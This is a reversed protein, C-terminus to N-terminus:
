FNDCPEFGSIGGGPYMKGCNQEHIERIQKRSDVFIGIELGAIPQGIDIYLPLDTKSKIGEVRREIYTKTTSGKKKLSLKVFFPGANATGTNGIQVFISNPSNGEALDMIALDPTPIIYTNKTINPKVLVQANGSTELAAVIAFAAVVFALSLKSQINM